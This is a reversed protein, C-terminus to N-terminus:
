VVCAMRHPSAGSLVGSLVTVIFSTKSVTMLVVWLTECM